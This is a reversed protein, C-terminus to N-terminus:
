TQILSEKLSSYWNSDKTLLDNIDADSFQQEVERFNDSFKTQNKDPLNSQAENIKDKDENGSSQPMSTEIKKQSWDTEMDSDLGSDTTATQSHQWPSPITGSLVEDEEEEPVHKGSFSSRYVPHSQM